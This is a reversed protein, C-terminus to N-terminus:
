LVVLLVSSTTQPSPFPTSSRPISRCTSGYKTSSSPSSSSRNPSVPVATALVGASPSASSTAVLSASASVASAAHEFHSAENKPLQCIAHERALPARLRRRLIILFTARDARMHKELPLGHLITGCGRGGHQLANARADPDHSHAAAAAELLAVARTLRGTIGRLGDPGGLSIHPPMGALGIEPPPTPRSTM